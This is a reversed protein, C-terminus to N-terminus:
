VFMKWNGDGLCLANTKIPKANDCHDREFEIPKIEIETETEM